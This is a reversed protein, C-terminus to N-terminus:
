LLQDQHQLQIPLRPLFHHRYHFQQRADKLVLHHQSAQNAFNTSNEPKSESLTIRMGGNSYDLLIKLWKPM